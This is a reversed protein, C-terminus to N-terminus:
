GSEQKDYKAAMQNETDTEPVAHYQITNLKKEDTKTIKWTECSSLIAPDTSCIDQVPTDQNKERNRQSGMGEKLDPCVLRCTETVQRRTHVADAVTSHGPTDWGSM